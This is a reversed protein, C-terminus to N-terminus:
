IDSRQETHRQLYWCPSRGIHPLLSHVCTQDSGKFVYETKNAKKQIAYDYYHYITVTGFAGRNRAM